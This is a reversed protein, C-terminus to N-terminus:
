DLPRPAPRLTVDRRATDTRVLGGDDRVLAEVELVAAGPAFRGRAHAMVALAARRRLKKARPNSDRSV